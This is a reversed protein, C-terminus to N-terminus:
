SSFIECVRICQYEGITEPCEDHRTHEEEVELWPSRVTSYDVIITQRRYRVQQTTPTLIFCQSIHREGRHSQEFRELQGRHHQHPLQQTIIWTLTALCSHSPSHSREVEKGHFRAMINNTVSKMEWEEIGNTCCIRLIVVNHCNKDTNANGHEHRRRIFQREVKIHISLLRTGFPCAYHQQEEEQEEVAESTLYTTIYKIWFFWNDIHWWRREGITGPMEKWKTCEWHCLRINLLCRSREIISSINAVEAKEVANDSMVNSWSPMSQGANANM